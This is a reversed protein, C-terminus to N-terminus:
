AVRCLAVTVKCEVIDVERDKDRREDGDQAIFLRDCEAPVRKVMYIGCLGSSLRGLSVLINLPEPVGEQREEITQRVSLGEASVLRGHHVEHDLQDFRLILLISQDADLDGNVTEPRVSHTM